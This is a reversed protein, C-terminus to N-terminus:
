SSWNFQISIEDNGSSPTTSLCRFAVNYREVGNDDVIDTEQVEVRPATIVIQNDQTADGVTISFDAIQFGPYYASSSVLPNFEGTIERGVIYFGAIGYESAADSLEFDANEINVSLESFYTDQLGSSLTANALILPDTSEFTPTLSTVSFQENSFMGIGAVDLVLEKGVTGLISCKTVIAYTLQVEHGDDTQALITLPSQDLGPTYTASTAAVTEDFGAAKLIRGIRPAANTGRVMTKFAFSGWRKGEYIASIVHLYRGSGPLQIISHQPKVVIDYAFIADSGSLTEPTGPTTENKLYLTRITRIPMSM